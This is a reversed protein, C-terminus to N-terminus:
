RPKETTIVATVTHVNPAQKWGCLMQNPPPTTAGYRCVSFFSLNPASATSSGNNDDTFELLSTHIQSLPLAQFFITTKRVIFLFVHLCSTQPRHPFPSMLHRSPTPIHCSKHYLTDIHIFEQARTV